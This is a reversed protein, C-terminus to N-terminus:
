KSMLDNIKDVIEDVNETTKYVSEFANLAKNLKDVLENKTSLDVADDLCTRVLTILLECKTM